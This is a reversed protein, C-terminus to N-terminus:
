LFSYSCTVLSAIWHKAFHKMDRIVEHGDGVLDRTVAAVCASRASRVVFNQALRYGTTGCVPRRERSAVHHRKRTTNRAWRRRGLCHRVRLRTGLEAGRRERAAVRCRTTSRRRVCALLRTFGTRPRHRARATRRGPRAHRAGSRAMDERRPCRAAALLRAVHWCAYGIANDLPTGISGDPMEIDAGGDILVAAVDVDDSSAAWHLPSEAGPGPVLSGRGTTRANPDAGADILLCAIRPGNPFYGPWDTVM